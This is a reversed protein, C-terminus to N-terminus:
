LIDYDVAQSLDLSPFFLPLCFFYFDEFFALDKFKKKNKGGGGGGGARSWVHREEWERINNATATVAAGCRCAATGRGGRRKLGKLTLEEVSVSSDSNSQLLQLFPLPLLKKKEM